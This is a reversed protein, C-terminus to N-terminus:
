PRTCIPSSARTACSPQHTLRSSILLTSKCKPVATRNARSLPRQDSNISSREAPASNSFAVTTATITTSSTIAAAKSAHIKPPFTPTRSYVPIPLRFRVFPDWTVRRLSYFVAGSWRACTSPNIYKDVMAVFRGHYHSLYDQCTVQWAHLYIFRTPRPHSARSM